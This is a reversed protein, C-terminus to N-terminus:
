TQARDVSERMQGETTDATYNTSAEENPSSACQCVATRQTKQEAVNHHSRNENRDHYAADVQGRKELNGVGAEGPKM